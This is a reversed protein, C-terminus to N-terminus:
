SYFPRLLAVNWPRNTEQGSRDRKNKRPQQADILYYSDNLLARSVIFPGEWPPSLKHRGKSQQVLRLVLDGEHFVRPNVHRSHCRRLGQQYIASRSSALERAEELLDVSDERAERAEAETYMAVRPADYEIDTPLVAEAGYVMFFPTYGTSRNPTTRLGWLVAPIEDIWCGPTKLLPEMLRAKIGALVLANSREVQGNSEPHAVSAIDLRIGKDMCFRAFEGVAFNTGNDSIISHPYGYRLIIEKLFTVASHGDLKRIPKVEIWKTFKDVMVLIHTMNGRAPRFEGVMDLCWVAFPWTIPITKLASAPLHTQKAFRQCGECRRVIEEANTLATPWYFGHRFVKAVLARSSCHHGCEGQHIELLMEKGEAPEVCRQLVETVSRKYLEKNIITYAKARRQIRRAETTDSPLSGETIFRMIQEAWEPVPHLPFLEEGVETPQDVEMPEAAMIEKMIEEVMIRGAGSSQHGTGSTQWATGPDPWVCGVDTEMPVAGSEQEAPIFISDSEPSPKISPTRLHNLAVGPPVAEKSSGLKSLVDAASNETRPIHRYECGEFVGSIKQVHFRYLAMNADLADWTGSSQQVVLDSDGFCEIRRVGIEKAVNLGHILAEYEAVNNSASFHIQLVYKLQDQKPSTLVVGAGLGIKAKSGDFHMKWYNYDPRPPEYQMEAWDCFFDPLAQSKIADRREYLPAYPSVEIAWKAVRGSADKCGIIESIPAECVVTMPHEQFYHKLKKVALYVGYTMKQYHPYNQKSTSLVESLYYVPRQVSRGGEEREVVVAVSVVRNTAAIYILMPENQLPSALVPATSLMKKLENFAADAQPTWTFGSSKKMLQYLPLAKEGMRGVFRSLSALCGTFKQVDKLCNPLKMNEIARIKAPNVEIGRSSVLFGLLKGAPVGFTCKEPNLKLRYKRLNVFTEELDELLTHKEKTKIVIDDVYVQVNKGMQSHLCKQMCRQYTAGANRLGFCMVRYCYAGYPTIFATKIQDKPNLPIQHFGSYADIFSLLECGATSDIVQDIRPLPFPDKPCAKNLNTFDICMRWVKVVAPEDKKKEVLVPNSIWDPHLVEMIFGAALLKALEDLVV